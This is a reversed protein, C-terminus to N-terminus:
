RGLNVISRMIQDQVSFTRSNAEIGRQALIMDAFERPLDVNSAELSGSNIVGLGGTRGMAYNAQGAISNIAFLNGGVANLGKPNIVSALQIQLQAPTLTEHNNTIDSSLIERGSASVFKLERNGAVTSAVSIKAGNAYTAELAGDSSISFTTMAYNNNADVTVDNYDNIVIESHDKLEASDYDGVTGAAFGMISLFNSTDSSSGGFTITEGDPTTIILQNNNPGGVAVTVDGDADEASGQLATQMATAIDDLSDGASITVSVDEPATVGGDITMTFTGTTVTSGTLQGVNTITDTDVADPVEFNLMTPIQVTTDSSTTSTANATGVVKLGSPNVLFGNSDLSFNGARSLFVQGDYNKMTFFGEGQINLDTTRGTTQISGNSFNRGIEGVAVGLGVEMPNIGGMDDTPASGASLTKSFVTEFNIQSSKFAVTNLNAINDCIVDMRAQSVAIGSAATFLGQSM